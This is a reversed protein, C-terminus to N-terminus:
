RPRPIQRSPEPPAAERRGAAVRGTAPGGVAYRAAVRIVMVVRGADQDMAYPGCMKWVLAVCITAVQAAESFPPRILVAHQGLHMSASSGIGILRVM